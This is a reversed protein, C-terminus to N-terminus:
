AFDFTNNLGAIVQPTLPHVKNHNLIIKLIRANYKNKKNKSLVWEYEVPDYPIDGFYKLGKNIIWSIHVSEQTFHAADPCWLNAAIEMSTGFSPNFKNCKLKAFLKFIIDYDFVVDRCGHAM